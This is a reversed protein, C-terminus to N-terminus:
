ESKDGIPGSYGRKRAETAPRTRGALYGATTFGLGALIAGSRALPKLSRQAVADLFGRIFGQPLIRRTYVRETALGNQAGALFTIVAKSNGEFYCRSRFYHWTTRSVPVDHFVRARPDYILLATPWQKGLRICLETEDCSYGIRFGDLTAFINRRMSMNSGHFNRVPGATEPMGRYTCGIVWNFEDPFWDPKETLYRPESIGGVGLVRADEYPALLFELWDPDPVADDDLFVVIDCSATEVCTNRAGKLGQEYKNEIVTVGDIGALSRAYLKPNHDITLVIEHPPLTQQKVACVAKCLSDWRDETYACIVVSVSLSGADNM